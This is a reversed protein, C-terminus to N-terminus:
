DIPEIQMLAEGYEIPQGNEVLIKSLTGDVDSEIENMLKMAEVICLVQGKKITDGIEVFSKADPSPSRYFTGVLPSTITIHRTEEENVENISKVIPQTQTVQPQEYPLSVNGRKLRVKYGEKEYELEIIDTDEIIDILKKIDDFEM